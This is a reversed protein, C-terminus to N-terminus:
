AAVMRARGGTKAAYLAVDARHVLEMPTEGARHEAMGISCTQGAPVSALIQEAIARAELRDRAAVAFEEGGWRAVITGEPLAAEVTRAFEMLMADGALHGHADNYRKFHDLDVLLVVAAFHEDLLRTLEEDWRRRNALGTLPDTTALREMEARAARLDATLWAPFESVSIWVAAAILLKMVLQSPALDDYAVLWTITAAPLLYLSSGRPQTMGVFLFAVFLSGMCLDTAEPALFSAGLLGIMLAFPWVLLSRQSSSRGIVAWLTIVAAVTAVFYIPVTDDVEGTSFAALMSATAVALIGLVGRRHWLPPNDVAPESPRGVAASPSPTASM